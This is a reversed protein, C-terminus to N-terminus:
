DSFAKVRELLRPDELRECLAALRARPAGRYRLDDLNERLPADRRLTALQKYLAAQPRSGALSEGLAQAGRVSVDWSRYDDPIAELSGYRALLAAASKAGWRPVGPIGDAADGVLALYDAIASPPV